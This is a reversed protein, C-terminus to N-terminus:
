EKYQYPNFDIFYLDEYMRGDGKKQRSFYLRKEKAHYFPCFVALASNIEPGLKKPQMWKGNKKFSIYLDM